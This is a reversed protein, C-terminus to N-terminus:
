RSSNRTPSQLTVLTNLSGSRFGTLDLTVFRFGLDHLHRDIQSRLRDDFLRSIQDIPFELRALDGRHYRVRLQTFGLGRLFQEAEDIMRLREPTVQEGYAVRSSLCPSAPKDWVPLEWLAALDRVDAKRFGCEVLPSRVSHLSAAQLGPRYDGLDDLNTGNLIVTAALQSLEHEMRSYLEHKCHFCRDPANQLYEPNTFEQTALEVHRIGIRAALERAQLLEGKALSPSVATVAVAREGLARQAAAAVVASDVGGSYAVACSDLDRLWCLLQDRKANIESVRKRRFWQEGHQAPQSGLLPCAARYRRQRQEDHRPPLRRVSGSADVDERRQGEGAFRMFFPLEEVAIGHCHTKHSGATLFHSGRGFPVDVLRFPESLTRGVNTLRATEVLFQDGASKKDAGWFYASDDRAHCLFSGLRM